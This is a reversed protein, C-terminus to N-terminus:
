GWCLGGGRLAKPKQHANKKLDGVSHGDEVTEAGCGALISGHNVLDEGDARQLTITRDNAILARAFGDHNIGPIVNLPNKRDDLLVFQLNFLDDDGVGVDVM